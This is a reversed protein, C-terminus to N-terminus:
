GSRVRDVLAAWVLVGLLASMAMLSIILVSGVIVLGMLCVELGPCSRLRLEAGRPEKPCLRPWVLACGGVM